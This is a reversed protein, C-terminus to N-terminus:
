FQAPYEPKVIEPFTKDKSKEIMDDVKKASDDINIAEFSKKLLPLAKYAAESDPYIRLMEEIRNIVAVYADRKMYFKAIDLEHNALRNKMYVMWNQADQVYQSQPYHQILTQFNGYANRVNDVARGAPNIRFKNQIWNDALRANSLGALYFVYDMSSSSPYSRAFREAADLAKYYEGLKYQAYIVSLQVQEGYATQKTRVDVAELYRIANNYDGDQLYNQGKSYLEQAPIGEFENKNSNSCATIALSTLLISALLSLKRM